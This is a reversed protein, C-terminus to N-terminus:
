ELAGHLTAAPSAQLLYHHYEVSRAQLKARQAVVGSRIPLVATHIMGSGM